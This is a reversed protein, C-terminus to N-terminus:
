NGLVSKLDQLMLNKVAQWAPIDKGNWKALLTGEKDTGPALAYAAKIVGMWYMKADQSPIVQQVFAGLSDTDKIVSLPDNAQNLLKDLGPVPMNDIRTINKRPM